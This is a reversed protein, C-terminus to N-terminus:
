ASIMSQLMLLSIMEEKGPLSCVTGYLGHLHVQETKPEPLPRGAPDPPLCFLM